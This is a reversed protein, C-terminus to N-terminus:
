DLSQLVFIQNMGPFLFSFCPYRSVIFAHNSSPYGRNSHCDHMNWHMIRHNFVVIADTAAEPPM